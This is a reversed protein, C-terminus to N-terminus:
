KNISVLKFCGQEINQKLLIAGPYAEAHMDATAETLYYNNPSVFIDALNFNISFKHLSGSEKYNGLDIEVMPLNANGGLDFTLSQNGNYRGKLRFFVYGTAWTWYMGYSPDLEGTHLGGFNEASDVGVFFRIKTYVGQPVNNIVPKQSNPVSIDILNYNKLNVWNGNSNLLSVNSVYYRLQNSTVTDALPTLFPKGLVFTDAGFVHNFSLNLQGTQTFKVGSFDVNEDTEEEDCSTLILLGFVLIYLIKKM